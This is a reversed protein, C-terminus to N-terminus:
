AVLFDGAGITGTVGTINLLMDGSPTFAGDHNTDIALYTGAFLGASVTVIRAAANGAAGANATGAGAYIGALSNSTAITVAQAMSVSGLGMGALGIKDVGAVFDTIRVIQQAGSSQAAATFLFLDAGGQGTAIDGQSTAGTFLFLDCGSSGVLVDAGSTGILIKGLTM